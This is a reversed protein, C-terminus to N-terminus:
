RLGGVRTPTRLTTARRPGVARSELTAIDRGFSVLLLTLASAAAVMGVGVPVVPALAVALLAGQLAAVVRRFASYALPARWEARVWSVALFAYRMAGILLVWVGVTPAVALSLVVLVGADVEMDLRAGAATVSRTRRAVYGDVGDLLLTPVVLALLWWTRTPVAGALLLVTVAACGGALAARTLTIRDAVTTSLPRRRLVAFGALAGPLTGLLVAAVVPTTPAGHLADAVAAGLWAFAAALLGVATADRRAQRAPTAELTNYRGRTM